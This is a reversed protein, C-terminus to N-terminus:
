SIIPDPCVFKGDASMGGANLRIIRNVLDGLTLIDQDGWQIFPKNSVYPELVNKLADKVTTTVDELDIKFGIVSVSVVIPDINIRSLTINRVFPFDEYCDAIVAIAFHKNTGCCADTNDWLKDCHGTVLVDPTWCEAISLSMPIADMAGNISLAIKDKVPASLVIADLHASNLGTVWRAEVEYRGKNYYLPADGVCPLLNLAGPDSCNGVTRPISSQLASNIIGLNARLATNIKDLDVPSVSSQMFWVLFFVGWSISKLLLFSGSLKSLFERRVSPPGESLLPEVSERADAVPVHSKSMSTSLDFCSLGYMLFFYFGSLLGEPAEASLNDFSNMSILTTFLGLAMVDGLSWDHILMGVLKKRGGFSVNFVKMCVFLLPVGIGLLLVVLGGLIADYAILNKVGSIPDKNASDFLLEILMTTISLSSQSVTLSGKLAVKVILVSRVMSWLLGILMGGASLYFMLKDLPKPTSAPITDDYLHSPDVLVALVEATILSLVCFALYVFFGEKLETHLVDQNLFARMFIAVFIDLFQFKATQRLQHSWAIAKHLSQRSKATLIACILFFKYVPFLVSFVLILILPLYVGQEYFHQLSQLTSKEIHLSGQFISYVVTFSFVYRM